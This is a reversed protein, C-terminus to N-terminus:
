SVGGESGRAASSKRTVYGDAQVSEVAVRVGFRFALKGGLFGSVALAALSVASLAIMGPGVSGPEGRRWVFNVVYAATVALNLSM